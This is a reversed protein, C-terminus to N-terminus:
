QGLPEYSLMSHALISFVALLDIQDFLASSPLTVLILRRLSMLLLSLICRQWDTAIALRNTMSVLRCSAALDLQLQMYVTLRVLLHM